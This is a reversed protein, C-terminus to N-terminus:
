RFANSLYIKCSSRKLFAKTLNAEQYVPLCNVAAFLCVSFTDQERKLLHIIQFHSVGECPKLFYSLM